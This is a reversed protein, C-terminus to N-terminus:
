ASILQQQGVITPQHTARTTRDDRGVDDGHHFPPSPVQLRFPDAEKKGVLRRFFSILGSNSDDSHASDILLPKLLNTCHIVFKQRSSFLRDFSVLKRYHINGFSGLAGAVLLGRCQIAVVAIV